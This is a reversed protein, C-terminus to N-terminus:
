PHGVGLIQIYQTQWDRWVKLLTEEQEVPGCYCGRVIVFNISHLEDEAILIALWPRQFNFFLRLLFIHASISALPLGLLHTVKRASRRSRALLTLPELEVARGGL